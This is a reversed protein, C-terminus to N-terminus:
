PYLKFHQWANDKLEYCDRDHLRFTGEKWFEFYRPVVRYGHWHPPRPPTIGYKIGYEAARKLLEAKSELKESQKSAWAGIRSELARSNYYEDADHGEVKEVKGEIRIQRMLDMWYFNLAAQPNEALNSGKRSLSNTYFVFGREDFDKLLVIRSSPIGSKNATALNMATPEKMGSNIAADFWNSFLEFPNNKM